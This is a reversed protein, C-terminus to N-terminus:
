QQRIHSQLSKLHSEVTGGILLCRIDAEAGIGDLIKFLQQRQRQEPSPTSSQIM